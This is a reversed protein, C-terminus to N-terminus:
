IFLDPAVKFFDGLAKAQAKSITRKGNVVESVRGRSGFIHVLDAQRLDNQELLFQLARHPPSAPFDETEDEYRGVLTSLLDLLLMEEPSLNNRKRLLKESEAMTREYEADGYIVVPAALALLQSYKRQDYNPRM